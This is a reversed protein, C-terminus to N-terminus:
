RADQAANPRRFARIRRGTPLASLGFSAVQEPIPPDAHADVKGALHQVRWPGRGNHFAPHMELRVTSSELRGARDFGRCGYECAEVISQPRRCHRRKAQRLVNSFCRLPTESALREKWFLM